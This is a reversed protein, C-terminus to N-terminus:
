GSDSNTGGSCVLENGACCQPVVWVWGIVLNPIITYKKSITSSEIPNSKVITVTTTEIMSNAIDLLLEIKSIRGPNHQTDSLKINTAMDCTSVMPMRHPM